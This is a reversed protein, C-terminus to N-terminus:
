NWNKPQNWTRLNDIRFNSPNFLFTVKIDFKHVEFNFHKALTLIIHICNVKVVISFTEGFNWSAVQTFGKAVLCAKYVNISGDLKYKNQFGM